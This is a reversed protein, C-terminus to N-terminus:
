LTRLYTLHLFLLTLYLVPQSLCTMIPTSIVTRTRATSLLSSKLMVMRILTFFVDLDSDSSGQGLFHHYTNHNLDLKVLSLDALFSSFVASRTINASSTNCDGRLFVAPSDFREVLNELAIKMSAISDLYEAEKGATPLYTAIHVMTKWGPLDLVIPLFSSSDAIHVTVYPDLYKHWLILTGGKARSSTLMLDPDHLDESNLAASYEGSFYKMILPLDSQFIM